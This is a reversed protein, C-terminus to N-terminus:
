TLSDFHLLFMLGTILPFLGLLAAELLTRGAALMALVTELSVLTTAAFVLQKRLTKKERDTFYAALGSMFVTFITLCILGFM